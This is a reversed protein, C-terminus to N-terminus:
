FLKKQRPDDFRLAPHDASFCKPLKIRGVAKHIRKAFNTYYRTSVSRRAHGTIHKGIGGYETECTRRLDHRTFRDEAPIRAEELLRDWQANFAKNAKSRPFVTEREGRIKDLHFRAISHLPLVLPSPKAWAQKKPTYVLWGTKCKLDLVRILGLPCVPTEYIGQAPWGKKAELKSQEAKWPLRFLECCRLGYIRWIVICGRWWDVAPIGDLPPWTATECAVYLRELQDDPVVRVDPDVTPLKRLKPVEVLLGKAKAERMIHSLYRWQKRITDASYERPDTEMSKQFRRADDDVISSVGPDPTRREWHNLAGYYGERTGKQTPALEPIVWEECCKRLTWGAAPCLVGPSMTRTNIPDPEDPSFVRFTRATSAFEIPAIM